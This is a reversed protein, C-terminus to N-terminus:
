SAQSNKLVDGLFGYQKRTEFKGPRDTRIMGGFLPFADPLRLKAKLERLHPFFMKEAADDVRFDFGVYFYVGESDVFGRVTTEIFTDNPGKVWGQDRFWKAHSYTAKPPGFHLKGDHIAFMLRSVHFSADSRPKNEM